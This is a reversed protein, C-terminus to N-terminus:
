SKSKRALTPGFPYNPGGVVFSAASSPVTLSIKGQYSALLVSEPLTVSLEKDKTAENLAHLCELMADALAEVDAIDIPRSETELAIGKRTARLEGTINIGWACHIVDDRQECLATVRDLIASFRQKRSDSESLSYHKDVWAAFKTHVEERLKKRAWLKQARDFAEEWSSGTTRRITVTLLHEIQGYHAAVRGLAIFLRVPLADFRHAETQEM